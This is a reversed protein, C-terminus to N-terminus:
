TLRRYKNRYREYYHFQVFICLDFLLTGGSGLLFPLSKLVFERETSKTLLSACYMVNGMFACGFMHLALGECKKTRYNRVIQPLRSTLYLFTCTWSIGVGITYGDLGGTPFLHWATEVSASSDLAGTVSGFQMVIALVKAANIFSGYSMQPTSERSLIVEEEARRQNRRNYMITQCLMLCDVFCFYTALYIQFKLQGTLISGILNTFDGMLWNFLFLVSLAEASGRRYNKILQPVQAFVWFSISVYGLLLSIAERETTICEGTVNTLWKLFGHQLSNDCAM